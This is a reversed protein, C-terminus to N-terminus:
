MTTSKDTANNRIKTGSIKAIDEPPEHYIVDYGVGRGYNV